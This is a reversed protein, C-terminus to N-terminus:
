SHLPRLQADLVQGFLRDSHSMCCPFGKVLSTSGLDFTSLVVEEDEVSVWRFAEDGASASDQRAVKCMVARRISIAQVVEVSWSWLGRVALFTDDDGEDVRWIRLEVPLVAEPISVFCSWDRPQEERDVEAKAM